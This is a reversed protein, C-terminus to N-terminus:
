TGDSMLVVSDLLAGVIDYINFNGQHSLFYRIDCHQSISM